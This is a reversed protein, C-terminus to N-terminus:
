VVCIVKASADGVLLKSREWACMDTGELLIAFLFSNASMFWGNPWVAFKPYDHLRYQFDVDYRYYSGAPDETQSVALCEHFDDLTFDATLKSVIWRKAQRDYRVIGDGDNHSECAGGFGTWISNTLKPFGPLMAGTSKDLVSIQVNVIQVIHNPGVALNADSPAYLTASGGEFGSATSLASSIQAGTQTVRDVVHNESGGVALRLLPRHEEVPPVRPPGIHRLQPSVDARGVTYVQLKLPAQPPQQQAVGTSRFLIVATVLWLSRRIMSGEM